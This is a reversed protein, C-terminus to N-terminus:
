SFMAAAGVSRGNYESVKRVIMLGLFSDNPPKHHHVIKLHYHSAQLQLLRRNPELRHATNSCM